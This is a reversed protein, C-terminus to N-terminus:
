EAKPIPGPEPHDLVAEWYLAVNADGEEPRSARITDELLQRSFGWIPHPVPQHIKRRDHEAPFRQLAGLEALNAIESAAQNEGIGLSRALRRSWVPPEQASILAIIELRHQKGFVQRSMGRLEERIWGLDNDHNM